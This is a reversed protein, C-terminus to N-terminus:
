KLTSSTIFNHGYWEYIDLPSKNSLAGAASAITLKKEKSIICISSISANKSFNKFLKERNNNFQLFIM